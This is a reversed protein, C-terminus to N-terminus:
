PYGGKNHMNIVYLYTGDDAITITATTDGVDPICTITATFSEELEDINDNEISINVCVVTVSESFELTENIGTYDFGDTLPSFYM